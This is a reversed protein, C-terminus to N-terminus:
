PQRQDEPQHASRYGIGITTTPTPTLTVGATFGYVGAPATSAAIVRLRASSPTMFSVQMYQVQVGVAVSVWDNIKYAVSPAFNYSEVKASKGCLQSGAWVQPFHLALDSRRM